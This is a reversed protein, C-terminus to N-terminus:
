QLITKTLVNVSLIVKSNLFKLRGYDASSSKVLIQYISTKRASKESNAKKSIPKHINAIPISVGQISVNNFNARCFNRNYEVQITM